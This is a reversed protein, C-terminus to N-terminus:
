ETFSQCIKPINPDKYKKVSVEFTSFIIVIESSLHYSIIGVCTIVSTILSVLEHDDFSVKSHKCNSLDVTM